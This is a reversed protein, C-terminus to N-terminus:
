EVPRGDPDLWHLQGWGLARIPAEIKSRDGVVVWVLRRPQVVDAATQEVESQTLARVKDPYTAFYDDPLNFRVMEAISAAVRSQTEWRGPLELTQSKKATDLEAETVPQPELINRLEKDLEVMSQSTKDTQVPAWAIFPSPGRARALLTHAGYSWHKDERLNMNVRSTFTGGLVSNLTERAIEGPQGAPPAIDAAM